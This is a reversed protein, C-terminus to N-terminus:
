VCVCRGSGPNHSHVGAVKVNLDTQVFEYIFFRGAMYIAILADLKTVDLWPAPQDFFRNEYQYEGLQSHILNLTLRMYSAVEDELWEQHALDSLFYLRKSMPGTVEGEPPYESTILADVLTDPNFKGRPKAEEFVTYHHVRRYNWLTQLSCLFDELYNLRGMPKRNYYWNRPEDIWMTILVDNLTAV